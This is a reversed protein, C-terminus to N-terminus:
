PQFTQLGQRLICRSFSIDTQQAEQFPLGMMWDWKNRGGWKARDVRLAGLFFLLFCGAQKPCPDIYRGIRALPTGALRSSAISCGRERDRRQEADELFNGWRFVFLKEEPHLFSRRM